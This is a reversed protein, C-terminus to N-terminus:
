EKPTIPFKRTCDWNQMKQQEPTKWTNQYMLDFVSIPSVQIQFYWRRYGVGLLLAPKPPTKPPPPPPSVNWRYRLFHLDYWYKQYTPIFYHYRWTNKKIKFFVYLVTFILTGVNKVPKLLKKFLSNNKSIELCFNWLTAWRGWM